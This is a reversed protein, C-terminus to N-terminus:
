TQQIGQVDLIKLDQDCTKSLEKEYNTIIEKLKALNILQQSVPLNNEIVIGDENNWELITKDGDNIISIQGFGEEVFAMYTM